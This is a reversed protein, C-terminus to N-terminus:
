ADVVGGRGQIQAAPEREREVLDGRSQLTQATGEGGAATAPVGLDLRGDDGGAVAGLDVAGALAGREVVGKAPQRLRAAHRVRQELGVGIGQLAAGHGAM